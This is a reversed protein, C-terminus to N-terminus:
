KWFTRTVRHSRPQVQVVRYKGDKGLISCTQSIGVYTCLSVSLSLEFTCYARDFKMDCVLDTLLKLYWLGSAVMHLRYYPAVQYVSHELRPVTYSVCAQKSYRETDRM